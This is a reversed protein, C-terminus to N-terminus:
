CFCFINLFPALFVCFFQVFFNKLICIIMRLWMRAVTLPSRVGAGGWRVCERGWLGADTRPM